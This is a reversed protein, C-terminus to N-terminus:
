CGSRIQIDGNGAGLIKAKDHADEIGLLPLTHESDLMIMDLEQVQDGLDILEKGIATEEALHRNGVLHNKEQAM